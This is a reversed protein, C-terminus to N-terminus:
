QHYTLPGLALSSLLISGDMRKTISTIGFEAEERGLEFRGNHYRLVKTSQLLIWLDGQSDAVLQQVAGIPFPQRFPRSFHM